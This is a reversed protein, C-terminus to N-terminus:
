RNKYLPQILVSGVCHTGKSLRLDEAYHGCSKINIEDVFSSISHCLVFCAFLSKM